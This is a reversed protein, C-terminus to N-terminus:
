FSIFFSSFLNEPKIKIMGKDTNMPPQIKRKEQFVASWHVGHYEAIYISEIKQMM